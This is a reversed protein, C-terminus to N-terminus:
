QSGAQDDNVAVPAEGLWDYIEADDEPLLDPDGASSNSVAPTVIANRQPLWWTMGIGLLAAAAAGLPLWRYPANRRTGALAERRMLRLRQVTAPDLQASARDFLARSQKAMPDDSTQIEEPDHGNM